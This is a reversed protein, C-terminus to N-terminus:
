RGDSHKKNLILQLSVLREDHEAPALFWDSLLIEIISIVQEAAEPSVDSVIKVEDDPLARFKGTKRIADLAEIVEQQVPPSLTGLTSIENQLKGPKLRFKARIMKQVCRRAMTVSAGTSVPLLRCAEDYDRYIAEPVEQTRLEPKGRFPPLLRGKFFTGPLDYGINQRECEDKGRLVAPFSGADVFVESKGCEIYPCVLIVSHVAV